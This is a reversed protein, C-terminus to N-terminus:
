AALRVLQERVKRRIDDHTEGPSIELYRVGARRLAEKKVADRAAADGQYHGRGQYEVALVPLGTPGIVLVDVRKSNITSHAASDTKLVEGLCTQAFVRHGGGIAAMETEVAQFMRYEDLGMVKKPEFKAGMVIRLQDASDRRSPPETRLSKARDFDYVRATRRREIPAFQVFAAILSFIGVALLVWVAGGSGSGIGELGGM